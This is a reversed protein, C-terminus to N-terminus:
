RGENKAQEDEMERILEIKLEQQRQILDDKAMAKMTALRVIGARSKESIEPINDKNIDAIGKTYLAQEESNVQIPDGSRNQGRALLKGYGVIVGKVLNEVFKSALNLGKKATGKIKFSYTSGGTETLDDSNIGFLSEFLKKDNNPPILDISIEDVHNILQLKEDLIQSDKELIIEVEGVEPVLKEILMKFREIFMKRGFDNKPVFGITEKRVDFYFTVYTAKKNDQTEVVDDKEEDYSVHVGPAYAVLRGSVTFKDADKNLTIFKFNVNKKRRVESLEVDTEMGLFVKTLLEDLNEKGDYVEYIKENINFKAFYITSM